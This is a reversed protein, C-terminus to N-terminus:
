KLQFIQLLKDYCYMRYRLQDNSKQLVGLKQLIKVNKAATNYAVGLREAAFDVNIIPNLEVFDYLRKLTETPKKYSWVNKMAIQRLKKAREIQQVTNEASVAIGNIFFRIWEAFQGFHQIKIFQHFCEDTERLFFDSLSLFPFSIMEENMLILLILIRGVRGNGCEFPHITEFQYYVIALKVLLDVPSEAQIFRKLDDLLDSIYEPLPPNYEPCNTTYQPHMLFATTRIRGCQKETTGEMVTKHIRCLNEITVPTKHLDKLANYYNKAALDDKTQKSDSLMSEINTVIGDIACSKQAENRLSMQLFPDIDPLNRMTGELIGIIQYTRTLLHTLEVDMKFREVISSLENPLFCWHKLKSERNVALYFKGSISGM